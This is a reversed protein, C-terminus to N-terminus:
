PHVKKIIDLFYDDDTMALITNIQCFYKNDSITGDQEFTIVCNNDDFFIQKHKHSLIMPKGYSKDKNNDISWYKYDDKICLNHKHNTIFKGIEDLGKIDKDKVNLTDGEDSRIYTCFTFPKDYGYKEKLDNIILPGDLGFTRLVLKSDSHENIVKLFSNFILNENEIDVIIKDYYVRFQEGINDNDTFTYIRDKYDDKFIKKSYNYFSVSDRDIKFPNDNIVWKNFSDIQGYISKSIVMNAVASPDLDFDTSDIPTITGNIDFNLIFQSM